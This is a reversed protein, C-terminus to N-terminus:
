QDTLVVYLSPIMYTSLASFRKKRYHPCSDIRSYSYASVQDPVCLASGVVSVTRVPWDKIGTVCVTVFDARGSKGSPCSAECPKIHSWVGTSTGGAAQPM